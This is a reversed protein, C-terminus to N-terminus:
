ILALNYTELWTHVTSYVSSLNMWTLTYSYFIESSVTKKFLQLTKPKSGTDRDVNWRKCFVNQIKM